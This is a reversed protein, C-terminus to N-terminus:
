NIKERCVRLAEDFISRQEDSHGMPRSSLLDARTNLLDYANRYDGQIYALCGDLVKLGIGHWRYYLKSNKDLAAIFELMIKKAQIGEDFDAKAICLITCCTLYPTFLNHVQPKAQLALEQWYKKDVIYENAELTWLTIFANSQEFGMERAKGFVHTNYIDLINELPQRTRIMLLVLHMWNHSEFFRNHAEWDSVFTNLFQIGEEIKKPDNEDVTHAFAHQALVNHPHQQLAKQLLDKALKTKEIHCCVLAYTGIFDPDNSFYKMLKDYPEELLPINGSVFATVELFLGAVRDQPFKEVLDITTFLALDFDCDKLQSILEYYLTERPNLTQAALIKMIASLQSHITIRSFSFLQFLATYIWLMPCESESLEAVPLLADLGDLKQYFITSVQNILKLQQQNTCSLELHNNDKLM